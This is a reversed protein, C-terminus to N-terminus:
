KSLKLLLLKSDVGHTILLSATHLAVAHNQVYEFVWNTTCHEHATMQSYTLKGEKEFAENM